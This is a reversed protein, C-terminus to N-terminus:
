TDLMVIREKKWFKMEKVKSKGLSTGTVTITSPLCHFAKNQPHSQLLFHRIEIEQTDRDSIALVGELSASQHGEFPRALAM